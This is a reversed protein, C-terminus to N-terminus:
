NKLKAIIEDAVNLMQELGGATTGNIVYKGNIILAPVGDIQYARLRATDKAVQSDVGFSSYLKDVKDAEIGYNALFSKVSKVSALNANQQHIAQFFNWHAPETIKLIDMVYYARAFHEWTKNFAAPLRYVKVDEPLKQQWRELHPELQFCYGCTYSFIATVEIANSNAQHRAVPQALEIYGQSKAFVPLSLLSLLVLTILKRM